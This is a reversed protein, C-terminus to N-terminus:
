IKKSESKSIKGVAWFIIVGTILGIACLLFWGLFLEPITKHQPFENKFYSIIYYTSAATISNITILSIKYPKLFYIFFFHLLAFMGIILLFSEKFYNNRIFIFGFGLLISLFFAFIRALFFKM